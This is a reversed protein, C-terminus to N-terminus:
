ELDYIWLAAPKGSRAPVASLFKKEHALLLSTRAGSSTNIHNVQVLEKDNARFVDIFGKGASVFVLNDSLNYFVDDADGSCNVASIDKGTETNIMRLKAPSRCAIFLRNNKEDLAMPFNSSAKTNKWRAILKSTSLEAVEIENADPVNIYIRNQKKSLQFSEPHGNLPIDAVQKMLNADIVAIAGNGYGVYLLQSSADYRINDADGKLHVIGSQKYTIADFFICDGNDGNAVVLKKFLSIYLIGQPEHLGTITHVVQKSHINVVEVTNNGLAAIFALHDLSDYAIHDIRGRVNPLIIKSVLNLREKETPKNAVQSHCSFNLGGYLFAILLIHSSLRIM